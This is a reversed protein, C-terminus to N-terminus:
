DESDPMPQAEMPDVIDHSTMNVFIKQMNQDVTKVVFGEKPQIVAGGEDDIIPNGDKDTQPPAMPQNYKEPNKLM